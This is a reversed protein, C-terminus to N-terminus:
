YHWGGPQDSVCCESVPGPPSLHGPQHNQSSKNTRRKKGVVTHLLSLVFSAQSCCHPGRPLLTPPGPHHPLDGKELRM